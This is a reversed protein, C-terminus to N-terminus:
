LMSFDVGTYNDFVIIIIIYLIVIRLEAWKEGQGRGGDRGATSTTSSQHDTPHADTPTDGSPVGQSWPRLSAM